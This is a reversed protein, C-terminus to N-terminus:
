PSLFRIQWSKRRVKPEARSGDAVRVPYSEHCQDPFPDNEGETEPRPPVDSQGEDKM